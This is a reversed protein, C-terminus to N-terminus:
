RRRVEVHVHGWPGGSYGDIQSWFPFKRVQRAVTTEGGIVRDGVRVTPTDVHLMTVLLGPNADPVIRIRADSYKGYLSYRKVEVVRGSVSALVSRGPRMAIDAASRAHTGRGRSPLVMSRAGRVPAQALAAGSAQHFGVLEPTRDPLHLDVGRVRAFPRAANAMVHREAAAVVSRTESPDVTKGVHVGFTWAARRVDWPELRSGFSVGAAALTAEAGRRGRTLITLVDSPEMVKGYGIGRRDAYAVADALSPTDGHVDMGAVVMADRLTEWGADSVARVERPEVESGIHVGAKWAARRVEWPDVTAGTSVGLLSLAVRVDPVDLAERLETAARDREARQGDAHEDSTGAADDGSAGRASASRASGDSSTSADGTRDGIGPIVDFWRLVSVPSQAIASPQDDSAPDASSANPTTTAAMAAVLAVVALARKAIRKLVHTYM